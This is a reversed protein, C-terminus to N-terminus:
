RGKPLTQRQASQWGRAVADLRSARDPSLGPIGAPPLRKFFSQAEDLTAGLRALIVGAFHDAELEQRIYEQGTDQELHGAMIHGIEHAVVAIMLWNSGKELESLFEPNMLIYKRGEEDKTASASSVEATLRVKFDNPLGVLRAIEEVADRARSSPQADKIVGITGGSKTGLKIV